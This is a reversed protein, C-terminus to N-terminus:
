LREDQKTLEEEERLKVLALVHDNTVVKKLIRKVSVDDLNNKVASAQVNKEVELLNEPIVDDESESSEERKRKLSRTRVKNVNKECVTDELNCVRNEEM